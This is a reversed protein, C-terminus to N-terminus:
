RTDQQLTFGHAVIDWSMIDAKWEYLEKQAVFYMMLKNNLKGTSGTLYMMLKNNLKGTSGTVPLLWFFKVSAHFCAVVDNIYIPLGCVRNYMEYAAQVAETSGLTNTISAELAMDDSLSTARMRLTEIEKAIKQHRTEYDLM